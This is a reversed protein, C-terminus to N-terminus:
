TQNPDSSNSFMGTMNRAERAGADSGSMMPSLAVSAFQIDLNPRLLGDGKTM